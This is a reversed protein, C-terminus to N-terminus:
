AWAPAEPSDLGLQRMLVYRVRPAARGDGYPNLATAMGAYAVPSTLLACSEAHIRSMDTGVLRAVGGEVGEPRETTERLVLVPKGFAPAEEQVGGSDTLIIFSREM